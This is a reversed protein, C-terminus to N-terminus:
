PKIFLELSHLIKIKIKRKLLPNKQVGEFIIKAATNSLVGCYEGGYKIDQEIGDFSFEICPDCCDVWSDYKLFAHESEKISTHYPYLNSNNKVFDNLKSNIFLLIPDPDISVVVFYKNKPPTCHGCRLLLIDGTAVQYDEM